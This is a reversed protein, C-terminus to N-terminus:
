RAHHYISKVLSINNVHWRSFKTFVSNANLDPSM